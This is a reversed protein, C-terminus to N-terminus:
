RVGFRYGLARLVLARPCRPTDVQVSRATMSLLSLLLVPYRRM